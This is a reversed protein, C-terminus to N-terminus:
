KRAKNQMKITNRRFTMLECELRGNYLRTKKVARMGMLKELGPEACIVSLTSGPHRDMLAPFAAYLKEAEKKTGLREGYPPNCLFDAREPLQLDRLDAQWVRIHGELGAQRLHRRCLELATPDIDSGSIGRIKEPDFAARARERELEVASKDTGPWAEMDFSRTLGPARGSMLFAAEILLTGTGCCPDHLPMTGRWPIMRCLAAALTERLPAEGNWTRYGRKNLADGCADITLRAKDAHLAATVRFTPGTEPLVRVRHAAMLEDVIAKKVIKQCDSSSMLRSRACHANVLIRGDPPILQHWPASRTLQFLEEFSLCEGEALIVQVRDACALYLCARFADTLTGTFRVGGPEAKADEFGLQLLEKKVLGELNFTATAYLQLTRESM